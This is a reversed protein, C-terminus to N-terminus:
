LLAPMAGARVYATTKGQGTGEGLECLASLHPAREASRQAGAPAVQPKQQLRSGRKAATHGRQRM